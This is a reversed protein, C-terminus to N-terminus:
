QMPETETDTDLESGGQSGHRRPAVDQPMSSGSPSHYGGPSHYDGTSPAGPNAQPADGATIGGTGSQVLQTGDSTTVSDAVIMARTTGQVNGTSQDVWGNQFWTYQRQVDSAVFPRVTGRITVTGNAPAPRAPSEILVFVPQSAFEEAQSRKNNPPEQNEPTTTLTFFHPDISKDVRSTLSVRRGFYQAPQQAIDTASATIPAGVAEADRGSRGPDSGTHELTGPQIAGGGRAPDNMGADRGSTGSGASQATALGVGALTAVGFSLLLMNKRLSM